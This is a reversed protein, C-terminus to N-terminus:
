RGPSSSQTTDAAPMRSTEAPQCRPILMVIAIAALLLVTLYEVRSFRHRSSSPPMFPLPFSDACHTALEVV